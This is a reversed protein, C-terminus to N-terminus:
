KLNMEASEMVEPLYIKLEAEPAPARFFLPARM